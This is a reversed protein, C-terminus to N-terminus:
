ERHTVSRVFQIKATLNLGVVGYDEKRGPCPMIWSPIPDPLSIPTEIPLEPFVQLFEHTNKNAEEKNNAGTRETIM